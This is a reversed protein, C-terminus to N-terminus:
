NELYINLEAWTRSDVVGDPKLGKERQFAKIAKKTQPGIKGDIKGKYFGAETLAKQIETPDAQSVEQSSASNLEAFAPSFGTGCLVVLVLSFLVWKKM